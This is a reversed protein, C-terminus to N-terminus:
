DINHGDFNNCKTASHDLDLKETNIPFAIITEKYRIPQNQALCCCYNCERLRVRIITFIGSIRKDKVKQTILSHSYTFIQFLHKVHNSILAWYSYTAFDKQSSLQLIRSQNLFLKTKITSMILIMGSLAPITATSLLLIHSDESIPMVM